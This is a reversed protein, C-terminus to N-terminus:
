VPLQNMDGVMELGATHGTGSFIENGNSGSIKLRIVADVSEAIRRDMAGNQPAALLGKSAHRAQVMIKQKGTKIEVTVTEDDLSIKTLRAGTYTAYRYIKGQYLFVCLFGTFSSKLWPIRAVSLMFSVNQQKDFHNSQMWIWASPMSRGWDKESYGKGGNFDIYDGKIELGGGLNHDMSVLGHNCEMFPVFSYWGMIGPNLLTSKLPHSNKFIVNGKASFGTQPEKADLSFGDRSFRNGAIRVSFESKSYEFSDIPYDLYHTEATKGNIFQIFAHSRNENEISIGPIISWISQRDKSVNKFYWGEFYTKKKKNGQFFVPNWIKLLNYFPKNGSSHFVSM